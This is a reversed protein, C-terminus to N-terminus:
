KATTTFLGSKNLVGVVTDILGAVQQVHAEPIQEAATAGAKIIDLAIQKKTEGPTGKFAAEISTVASIVVPLYMFLLKLWTM